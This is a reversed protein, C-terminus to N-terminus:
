QVDENPNARTSAVGTILAGHQCPRPRSITQALINYMTIPKGSATNSMSIEKRLTNLIRLYVRELNSITVRLDMITVELLGSARRGRGTYTSLTYEARASIKSNQIRTRYRSREVSPQIHDM